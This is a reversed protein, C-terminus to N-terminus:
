YYQNGQQAQIGTFKSIFVLFPTYLFYKLTNNDLYGSFSNLFKVKDETDLLKGSRVKV